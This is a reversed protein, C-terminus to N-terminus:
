AHRGRTQEMQSELYDLALRPDLDLPTPTPAAFPNAPPPYDMFSGNLGAELYGDLAADASSLRSGAAPGESMQRMIRGLRNAIRWKFYTGRRAKVMWGSLAEIQGAAPKRARERVPSLRGQPLFSAIMAMLVLILLGAWILQGPIFAYVVSLEWLLYALPVVVLAHIADRLWFAFVALALAAGALGLMWKRTM